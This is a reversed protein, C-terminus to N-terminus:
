IYPNFEESYLCWRINYKNGLLQQLYFCLGIMQCNGIFGINRM